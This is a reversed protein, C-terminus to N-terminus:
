GLIRPNKWNPDLNALRAELVAKKNEYKAPNLKAYREILIKYEEQAKSLEVSPEVPTDGTIPAVEATM